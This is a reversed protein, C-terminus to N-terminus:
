DDYGGQPVPRTVHERIEAAANLALRQAHAGQESCHYCVTIRPLCLPIFFSHWEFKAQRRLTMLYGTEDGMDVFATIARDFQREAFQDQIDRFSREDLVPSGCDICVFVEDAGVKPFHESECLHTSTRIDESM